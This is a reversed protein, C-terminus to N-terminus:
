RTSISSPPTVLLFCIFLLYIWKEMYVFHRYLEHDDGSGFAFTPQLNSCILSLFIYARIYCSNRALAVVWCFKQRVPTLLCLRFLMSNWPRLHLSFRAFLLSVSIIFICFTYFYDTKYNQRPCFTLRYIFLLDLFFYSTVCSSIHFRLNRWQSSKYTSDRLVSSWYLLGCHRASSSPERFSIRLSPRSLSPRSVDSISRIPRWTSLLSMALTRCKMFAPLDVYVLGFMMVLLRFSTFQKCFSAKINSADKIVMLRPPRTMLMWSLNM